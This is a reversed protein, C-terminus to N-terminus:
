SRLQDFADLILGHNKRPEITGISLLSRGTQKFVPLPSTPRADSTKLLDLEAGLRFSDILM